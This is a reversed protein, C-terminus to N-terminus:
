FVFTYNKENNNLCIDKCTFNQDNDLYTGKLRISYSYLIKLEDDFQLIVLLYGTQLKKNEIRL